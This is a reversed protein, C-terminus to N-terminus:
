PKSTLKFTIVWVFVNTNWSESGHLAEWKWAYWDVPSGELTATEDKTFDQMMSLYQGAPYGVIAEHNTFYEKDSYGEAIADAESISQVREVRVGTIELWIRAAAKPMFLPSKWQYPYGAKIYDQRADEGVHGVNAKYAYPQEKTIHHGVFPCYTEKVYLLDGVKYPALEIFRKQWPQHLIDNKFIHKHDGSFVFGSNITDDIPQPKIIRRTQVKVGALIAAISSAQMIIGKQKPAHSM